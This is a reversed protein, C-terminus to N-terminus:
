CKCQWARSSSHTSRQCNSYCLVRISPCPPLLALEYRASGVEGMGECQATIVRNWLTETCWNNHSASYSNIKRCLPCMGGLTIRCKAGTKGCSENLVKVDLFWLSWYAKKFFVVFISGRFTYQTILWCWLSNIVPLAVLYSDNYDNWHVQYFQGGSINLHLLYVLLYSLNFPITKTSRTM